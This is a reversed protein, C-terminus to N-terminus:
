RRHLERLRARARRARDPDHATRSLYYWAEYNEPEDKVVDILVRDSAAARPDARWRLRWELLRAPADPVLRRAERADALAGALRQGDVRQPLYGVVFARREARASGLSLALWAALGLALAAIVFRSVITTLNRDNM